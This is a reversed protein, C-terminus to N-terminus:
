AAVEVRVTVLTPVFVSNDFTLVLNNDDTSTSEWVTLPGTSELGCVWWRVRNGFGHALTASDTSTGAFGDLEYEKARPPLRAALSALQASVREFAAAVAGPDAAESESLRIREVPESRSKSTSGDAKFRVIASM